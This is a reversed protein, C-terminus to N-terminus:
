FFKKFRNYFEQHDEEDDFGERDFDTKRIIFSGQFHNSYNVYAEKRPCKTNSTFMYRINFIKLHM